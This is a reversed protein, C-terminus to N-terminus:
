RWLDAKIYNKQHEEEEEEEKTEIKFNRFVSRVIKLVICVFDFRLSLFALSLVLLEVFPVVCGVGNRRWNCLGILEILGVFGRLIDM